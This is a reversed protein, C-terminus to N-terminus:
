GREQEANRHLWDAVAQPMANVHGPWTGQVFGVHGGQAPQSLTVRAGVDVAQPLSAAPVFPDNRANLLLTPVAIHRLFPKASARSWYDMVGRFGHVPATFADDFEALTRAQMARDLDFLGPHQQWKAQAKPKMTRLFMPTYLLRNLGRGLAQGSAVLDLPACIAALADVRACAQTGLEGAWRMLANGGLSVGAALLPGSCQARVRRLIWDMEPWDGSHYARPARNLTGGCGRFHPLIFTWGRQQAQRAFARAYHSASSGELGHFLVLCPTNAQTAHTSPSPLVDVDIFDDDPTAWRERNWAIPCAEDGVRALKAAAITQWHGGPLWWPSALPIM